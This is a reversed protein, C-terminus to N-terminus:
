WKIALNNTMKERAHYKTHLFEKAKESHVGGLWKEYIEMVLGNQEPSSIRLFNPDHYISDLRQVLEKGSEGSQPAIQGGGNLCGSPCAMVEVFDYSEKERERGRVRVKVGGEGEGEESKGTTPPKIKRVLNQINRFGYALAFHLVRKGEIELSVERYDPNRGVKYEIKEIEKGFLKKAAFRFVFELYGGSGGGSGFFQGKSDVNTFLSDLPSEELEKFNIGKEQIIALIESSSLVCDVERTQYLEDYFDERSAELKKDYCPMLTAHYLEDPRKKIQDALYVKVLSGM